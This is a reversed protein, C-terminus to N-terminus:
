SDRPSPSTYLLCACAEIGHKENYVNEMESVAKIAAQAADRVPPKTDYRCTDLMKKISDRFNMMVDPEIRSALTEVTEMAAKRVNFDKDQSAEMIRTFYQEVHPTFGDPCVEVINAIAILLDSRGLFNSRDM